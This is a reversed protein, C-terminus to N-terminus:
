SHWSRQPRHVSTLLTISKRGHVWAHEDSHGPSCLGSVSLGGAEEENGCPIEESACPEDESVDCAWLM